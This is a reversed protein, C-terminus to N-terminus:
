ERGVKSAVVLLLPFQSHIVHVLPLGKTNRSDLIRPLSTELLPDLPPAVPPFFLLLHVDRQNVPWPHKGQHAEEM